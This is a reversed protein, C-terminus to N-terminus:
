VYARLRQRYWHLSRTLGEDLDVAPAWGTVQRFATDDAYYSGIDIQARDPPLVKIAVRRRMNVHEALFVQGMGGLGIRDLLKHKGLFFGRYKGRLLQEVHFAGLLGDARMRACLAAPDALPVQQANLYEDLEAPDLLKSKRVLTVLEDATTPAPM